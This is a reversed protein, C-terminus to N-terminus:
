HRWFALAEVFVLLKRALFLSAAGSNLVVDAAIALGIIIAMVTYIRDDM